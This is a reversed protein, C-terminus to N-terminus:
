PEHPRGQFGPANARERLADVALRSRRWIREAKERGIQEALKVLPTDIEYQLLATSAADFRDLPARRDCVIVHLHEASCAEAVMAGTIGAGIM